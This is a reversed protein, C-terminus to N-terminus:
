LINGSNIVIHIIIYLLLYFTIEPILLKTKIIKINSTNLQANNSSSRQNTEIGLMYM